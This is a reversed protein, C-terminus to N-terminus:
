EHLKQSFLFYLLLGFGVSFPILGGLLAYTVGEMALFFVTLTLGVSITVTSGALIYRRFNSLSSQYLGKEILILKQRHHWYLFFVVVVSGFVIGVIPIITLMIQAVGHVSDYTTAPNSQQILGLMQSIMSILM